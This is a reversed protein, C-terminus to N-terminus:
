WSLKRRLVGAFGALGTGILLLSSPEPVPATTIEFRVNDYTTYETLPTSSNPGGAITRQGIGFTIANGAFDPHGTGAIGTMFDFETFDGATFGTQDFSVWGSTIGSWVYSSNVAGTYYKGDQMLVIGLATGDSPVPDAMTIIRDGSVRISDIAGETQPNYVFTSNTFASREFGGNPMNLTIAFSPVKSCDVPPTAVACMASAATLQYNSVTTTGSTAYFIKTYNAMNFTDDFFVTNAFAAM